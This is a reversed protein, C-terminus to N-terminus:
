KLLQDIRKEVLERITDIKVQNVVEDAFARVLLKRANEEKIGRARLYFLADEDIRGTSTGHSCKVDDAYIELQPKTNVSSDDGLLINRNTQFANTKQADKRVFIKGNFVASSKGNMVGKYLENSMCNPVAHDVVTHNDVVQNGGPLYLGYLHAEGNKGNLVINLNNRVWAGGLTFTYTNYLSNTGLQTQATSLLQGAEGEWQLRYHELKANDAVSIETLSNTFSRVPGISEFSEIITAQSNEGALVLNRPQLFTETENDAIHIIHVPKRIVANKAIHVFVGGESLATNVAAFPDDKSAYRNYHSKAEESVSLAHAISDFSLGEADANLFLKPVFIGNIVVLVIADPVVLFKKLDEPTVGRMLEHRFGLGKRFLTDPAIYKYDETKRTPFGQAAFVEAAKRRVAADGPLSPLMKGFHDLLSDRFNTKVSATEM